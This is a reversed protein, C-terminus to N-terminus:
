IVFAPVRTKTHLRTPYLRAQTEEWGSSSRTPLDLVPPELHNQHTTIWQDLQGAFQELTDARISMVADMEERTLGFNKVALRRSGDLLATRFNADIVATGVLAQLIEFAM